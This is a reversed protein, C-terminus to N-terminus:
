GTNRLVRVQQCIVYLFSFVPPSSIKRKVISLLPFVPRQSPGKGAPNSLLVALVIMLQRSLLSFYSTVTGTSANLLPRPQARHQKRVDPAEADVAAQLAAEEIAIEEEMDEHVTPSYISGHKYSPAEEDDAVPLMVVAHSDTLTASRQGHQAGPGVLVSGRSRAQKHLEAFHVGCAGAHQSSCIPLM